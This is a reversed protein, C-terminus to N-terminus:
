KVWAGITVKLRVTQLINQKISDSRRGHVIRPALWLKQAEDGTWRSPEVGPTSGKLASARSVSPM